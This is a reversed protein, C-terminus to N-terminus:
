LLKFFDDNDLFGYRKGRHGIFNIVYRDLKRYIKSGSRFVRLEYSMESVRTIAAIDGESCMKSGRLPSTGLRFDLNNEAEFTVRQKETIGLDVFKINIINSLTGKWGRKNQIVLPPFFDFCDKSLWFYQTGKAAKTGPDAMIRATDAHGLILIMTQLEEQEAEVDVRQEDYLLEWGPAEPDDLTLTHIQWDQQRFSNFLDEWSFGQATLTDNDVRLSAEVNQSMGPGTFNGSSIVLSQFNDRQLGYCKAHLIRKRNIVSVRAGCELLANAVEKSSLRQSASGGLFVEVKGGNETHEILPKYFRAGGNYNAFGSMIFITGNRDPNEKIWIRELMKRLNEDPGIHYAKPHLSFQFM